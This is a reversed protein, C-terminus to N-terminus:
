SAKTTRLKALMIEPDGGAAKIKDVAAQMIQQERNLANSLAKVAYNVAKNKEKNESVSAWEPSDIVQQFATSGLEAHLVVDGPKCAFRFQVGRDTNQYVVVAGKETLRLETAGHTFTKIVTAKPKDQYM